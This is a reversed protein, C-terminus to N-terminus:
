AAEPLYTLVAWSLEAPRPPRQVVPSERAVLPSRLRRALAPVREWLSLSIPLHARSSQPVPLWPGLLRSAVESFLDTKSDRRQESPSLLYGELM